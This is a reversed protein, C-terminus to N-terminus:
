RNHKSKLHSLALACLAAVAIMLVMSVAFIDMKPAPPQHLVKVCYYQSLYIRGTEADVYGSVYIKGKLYILVYWVLRDIRYIPNKYHMLRVIKVYSENVDCGKARAFEIFANIADEKSVYVHNSLKRYAVYYDLFSDFRGDILVISVYKEIINFRTDYRAIVIHTSNSYGSVKLLRFTVRLESDNKLVTFNRNLELGSYESFLQLTNLLDEADEAGLRKMYNAYRRVLELVDGLKKVPPGSKGVVMIRFPYLTGNSFWVGIKILKDGVKVYATYTYGRVNVYVGAVNVDFMTKVLERCVKVYPDNVTLSEAYLLVNLASIAFLLTLVTTIFHRHM